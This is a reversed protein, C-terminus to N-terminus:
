DDKKITIKVAENVRIGSIAMVQIRGNAGKFRFLWAFRRNWHLAIFHAVPRRCSVVFL